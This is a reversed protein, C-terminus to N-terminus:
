SRRQRFFDKLLASSDEKLFGELVNIKHNFHTEKLLSLHSEVAGARPERTAFVLTSIRAHLMAGVCMLCPELTVYLVSDPLRYNGVNSAANRLAVVEAHATPDCSAIPQNYGTGILEGQRVLVAGVPVEGSEGAKRALELAKTMWFLHDNDM